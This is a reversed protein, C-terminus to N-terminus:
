SREPIVACVVQAAHGGACPARTLSFAQLSTCGRALLTRNMTASWVAPWDARLESFVGSGFQCAMYMVLTQRAANQALQAAEAGISNSPLWMYEGNTIGPGSWFERGVPIASANRLRCCATACHWSATNMASAAPTM